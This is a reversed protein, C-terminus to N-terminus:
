VAHSRIRPNKGFRIWIQTYGSGVAFIAVNIKEIFLHYNEIQTIYSKLHCIKYYKEMAQVSNPYTSFDSLIGLGAIQLSFM